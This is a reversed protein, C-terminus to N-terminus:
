GLSVLKYAYDLFGSTSEESLGRALYKDLKDNDVGKVSYPRATEIGFMENLAAMEPATEFYTQARGIVAEPTTKIGGAKIFGLDKMVAMKPDDTLLKEGVEKTQPKKVEEAKEQKKAQTDETKAGNNSQVYQSALRFRLDEIGM